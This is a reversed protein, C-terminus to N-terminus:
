CVGAEFFAAEINERSQEYLAQARVKLDFLPTNPIVEASLASVTIEGVEGVPGTFPYALVVSVRWIKAASDLLPKDACFRDPLNERLYQNAAALAEFATVRPIIRQTM